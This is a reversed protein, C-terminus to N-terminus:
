SGAFHYDVTVKPVSTWTAGACLWQLVVWWDPAHQDDKIQGPRPWRTSLGARHMLMSTDIGGYRPPGLGIVTGQPHTLMASYAFDAGSDDLAKVLLDLHDPRWENDDDLYAVVDGTIAMLGRNRAASGFNMPHGDHHRCELYTVPYDAMLARLVPDPGDSVVVHEVDRYTQAQVSAIARTRVFDHRNWTPTIVSVKM